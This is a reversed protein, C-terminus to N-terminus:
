GAVRVLLTSPIGPRDYTAGARMERDPSGAGCRDADNAREVVPIAADIGHTRAARGSDPFKEDGFAAFAGDVFVFNDACAAGHEREFGIGVREAGFKAGIGARDDDIEIRVYPGVM